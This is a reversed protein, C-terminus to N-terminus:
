ARKPEIMPARFCKQAQAEDPHYHRRRVAAIRNRAERRQHNHPDHDGAHAAHQSLAFLLSLAVARCSLDLRKEATFGSKVSGTDSEVPEAATRFAPKMFLFPM